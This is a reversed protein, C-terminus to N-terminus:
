CLYYCAPWEEVQDMVQHASAQEILDPPQPVYNPNTARLLQSLKWEKSNTVKYGLARSRFHFPREAVARFRGSRRDFDFGLVEPNLLKCEQAFDKVSFFISEFVELNKRWELADEATVVVEKIRALLFPPQGAKKM